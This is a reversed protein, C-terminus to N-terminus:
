LPNIKNAFIVKKPSFHLFIKKYLCFLSVIIELQTTPISALTIRPSPM